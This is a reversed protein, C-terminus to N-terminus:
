NLTKVTNWLIICNGINCGCQRTRPVSRQNRVTYGDRWEWPCCQASPAPLPPPLAAVSASPGIGAHRTARAAPRCGAAAAAPLPAAALWAAAQPRQPLSLESADRVTQGGEGEM